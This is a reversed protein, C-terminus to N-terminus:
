PSGQLSGLSERIVLHVSTVVVIDRLEERSFGRGDLGIGTNRLDPLPSPLSLHCVVLPHHPAPMLQGIPIRTSEDLVLFCTWSCYPLETDAESSGSGRRTPSTAPSRSAGRNRSASRSREEIPPLPARLSEPSTHLAIESEPTPLPSAAAKPSAPGDSDRVWEFAPRITHAPPAPIGQGQRAFDNFQRWIRTLVPNAGAETANAAGPEDDRALRKIEWVYARTMKGHAVGAGPVLQPISNSNPANTYTPATPSVVPPPLKDHSDTRHLPEMATATATRTTTRMSQSRTLGHSDEGVGTNRLQNGIKRIRSFFKSRLVKSPEGASSAAAAKDGGEDAAGLSDSSGQAEDQADTNAPVAAAQPPSRRGQMYLVEHPQLLGFGDIEVGKRTFKAVNQDTGADVIHTTRIHHYDLNYLPIARRTSVGNSSSSSMDSGGSRTSSTSNSRRLEAAPVLSSGSNSRSRGESHGADSNPNSGTRGRSLLQIQLNYPHYHQKKLSPQVIILEEPPSVRARRQPLTALGLATPAEHAPPTRPIDPGSDSTHSAGNDSHADHSEVDTEIESSEEILQRCTEEHCGIAGPM